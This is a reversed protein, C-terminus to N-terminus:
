PGASKGHVAKYIRYTARTFTKSTGKNLRPWTQAAYTAQALMIASGIAAKASYTISQKNFFPGKLPLASAYAMAARRQIEM